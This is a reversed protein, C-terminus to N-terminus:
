KPSTNEISEVVKGDKYILTRTLEGDDNYLYRKGNVLKGKVFDGERDIKKFENYTKYFGTQTFADFKDDKPKETVPQLVPAVQKQSPKQAIEYEKISSENIKGDIFAIESKVSGDPYFESLVGEKKGDNWDGKIMLSGDPYYYKQEGTRKGTENYKWDYALTGNEHYYKYDGVWKNIKWLGQESIKGDEYYFKAPGDPRNNVYTIEQKLKGSPYYGYWLGEKLNNVYEGKEELKGAADLKVWTGQKKNEADRRNVTQGQYTESSQAMCLTSSIFVLIVLLYNVM